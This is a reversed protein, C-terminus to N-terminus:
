WNQLSESKKTTDKENQDYKLFHTSLTRYGGCALHLRKRDGYIGKCQWSRHKGHGQIERVTNM